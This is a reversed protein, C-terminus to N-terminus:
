LLYTDVAGKATVGDASDFVVLKNTSNSVM